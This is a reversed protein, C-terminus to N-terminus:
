HRDQQGEQPRPLGDRAMGHGYALHEHGSQQDMQSATPDFRMKM